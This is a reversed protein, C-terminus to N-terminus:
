DIDEVLTYDGDKIIVDPKLESGTYRQSPLVVISDYEALSNEFTCESIDKVEEQVVAALAQIETVYIGASLIVAALAVSILRKM